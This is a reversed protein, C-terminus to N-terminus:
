DKDFDLAYEVAKEFGMHRGEQEYTAAAKEGVAKKAGGIYEEIWDMWFKVPFISVGFEEYKADIAGRLRLAKGYRGQGSVALSVGTMERCVQYIDGRELVYKMAVSYRRETEKYDKRMLACDAHVHLNLAKDINANLATADILNQEVLPEASDVQLQCIHAWAKAGRSQLLLYDDKLERAIKDIESAANQAAAFDSMMSKAASFYFLIKAKERINKLEGLLKISNEVISLGKPDGSLTLLWGYRSAARAKSLSIESPGIEVGKLYELGINYHSHDTWFWGLLGALHLRKDPDNRVWELAAIINDHEIELRNLWYDARELNELFAQESISSYYQYHSDRVSDTEGSELLKKKAYHRITELLQYRFKGNELTKTIVLSKEILGTLVDISDINNLTSGSCIKEYAELDFGGVFVSLRHFITKENESLLDYSWDITAELTKHRELATRSGGTLLRFRDDLRNLILEPDFVNVRSAALEIALPIGDLRDCIQMVTQSNKDSLKFDPQKNKARAVFLQIAEYFGLEEASLEKGDQPLSLSPVRWTVEDGVNLAERSTALITVDTTSKLIKEVIDSCAGILHECNDLVLLLHKDKLYNVIIQILTTGPQERINFIGAVAQDIHEPVALPALEVIWVGETYIPLSSNAIQIALRSKGCGGAGTLTVLRNESLLQQVTKIEKSRGVFSTLEVPLNHKRSLVIIRTPRVKEELIDLIERMSAFRKEAEKLLCTAIVDALVDPCDPCLKKIDQPEEYIISHMMATEHDGRFPLSGTLMEYFMIGLSWIDTRHDIEEGRAQEPSMYAITGILTSPKTLDVGGALKAIGFDMIKATGKDTLMINAPKIDRHIIGKAHAENLGEGIQTVIKVAEDIELKVAAIREKLAQGAIFEMAIFTHDDAEDVEYIICINPHNLAAAVQAEQFFRSKAQKDLMLEAPLFKLAVHRKLKTDKAKYVIGMGGRGLEELIQYKEAILKDIRQSKLTKTHDIEAEFKTGCKGCFSTENPNEYQCNPCEFTM